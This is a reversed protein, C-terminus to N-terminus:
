RELMPRSLAARARRRREAGRRISEEHASREQGKGSLREALQLITPYKYLDVITVESSVRSRILDHARIVLLSHAGMDFLNDRLGVRDLDLLAKWIEALESEIHTRPPEYADRGAARLGGMRSLAQRDVKGSPLSPLRDVVCYTSPVMYLPLRVSLLRRLADPSLDAATPFTSMAAPPATRPARLSGRSAYVNYLNTGKLRDSQATAMEFGHTSLLELIAQLRGGSNEVEAVIQRVRDWDRAELGRLVDLESREVDIKLLDIRDVGADRVADSLTKATVNLESASFREAALEDVQVASLGRADREAARRFIAADLHPAAFLGSLSAARRYYTFKRTGAADSIAYPFLRANCRHLEVNDHLLSFMAPNPEFACVRARPWNLHVWLTFLGINAGLDFVCAGDELVIRSSYTLDEFIEAYHFDTENKSHHLVPIGNPLLYCHSAHLFQQERTPVVYAALYGDGNPDVRALVVAKEIAPHRSLEAAVEDLEVRQGRVKIQHDVRGIYELSGQITFRGMDGTRYMRAGPEVSFPDPMFAAATLDPRGLYGRNVGRGGVYIEGAALPPVPSLTANLLYVTMNAVPRGIPANGGDAAQEAEAWTVDNSLESTGYLNVLVAHSMAAAFRESVDATLAEGSVIWLTLDALRSALDPVTDLMTRLLSPVLVIRTVRADALRSVLRHPDRVVEDPVVVTPVGALLPGFIEQISDGFSLSTKQCCIEGPRFPYTRWMWYFANLTSAHLGLIGKPKGTSGSSYMVYALNIPQVGSGPTTPPQRLVAESPDDLLIRTGDFTGLRSALARETLLISLKAETVIEALREDPYLPDLPVYAAGAKLIALLGVYMHPSRNTFIGILIEPGAGYVRLHHALRNTGDNLERFTLVGDCEVATAEPMRECTADFIEHICEDTPYDEQTANWDVLVSRREEETLLSLAGVPRDVSNAFQVLLARYEGLLQRAAVAPIRARDYMLRISLEEGPVAVLTLPYSSQQVCVIEDVALSGPASRLLADLPYNEVIVVTEFAPTATPLESWRQVDSLASHGFEGAEALRTQVTDLWDRLNARPNVELRLPLTNIFLGVTSEIRDLQPPRGSVTVGHVVDREGSYGALLLAWAGQLLTNLTCHNRMAQGRLAAAEAASLADEIEDPDPAQGYIRASALPVPTPSTFGKLVNRWYRKATVNDRAALWDVFPRFAPAPDAEIAAGARYAEYWRSLDELVIAVSWGDALIHHFSWVIQVAGAGLRAVFLRMLPARALDFGKRREAELKRRLQERQQTDSWHSWDEREVSISAAPSVRQRPTDLEQWAFETRLAAHRAIVANWARVFADDDFPGRVRFCMHNQYVGTGPAALDHYLMGHQMATIPYSDESEDNSIFRLLYARITQIMRQATDSRHIASGYRLDIHLQEDRIRAIVEFLYPRKLRPSRESGCADSELTFLSGEPVGREVRGLYDLCIEAKPVAALECPSGDNSSYCLLGFGAGGKPVQRLAAKVIDLVQDSRGTPELDLLLPFLATFWGVTRSVDLGAPTWGRGHREIDMLIRREGTWDRCAAAVAAVLLELPRAGASQPGAGLFARTEETGLRDSVTCAAGETNHGTSTDRPLPKADTSTLRAWYRRDEDLEHEDVDRVLSTAWAQFSTAPTCSNRRVSGDRYEGELDSVLIPWSLADTALHHATMFLRSPESSGCDFHVVRFVPGNAVNLSKQIGDIAVALSAHRNDESVASLDLTSFCEGATRALWQKWDTGCATVRLRLADHRATVAAVAQKMKNGDLPERCALLISQNYHSIDPQALELFWQQIPTLPVSDGDPVAATARQRDGDIAAALEAISQHRFFQEVTVHVADRSLLSVIQVITISDAGLEFINDEVAVEDMRLMTSWAWALRQETPTRPPTRRGVPLSASSEPLKSVDVKGSPTLPLAALVVFDSPVMYHPLRSTLFRRLDTRFEDTNAAVAASGGVPVVYAILRTGGVAKTRAVVAADAVRPHASLGAAVEGPEVRCGLVKVQDDVRGCYEISGDPLYRGLDGTRYMRLFPRSEGGSRGVAEKVGTFSHIEYAQFGDASVVAYPLRWVKVQASGLEDLMRLLINSDEDSDIGRSLRKTNPTYVIAEGRTDDVPVLPLSTQIAFRGGERIVGFMNRLFARPDEVRDLVLTCIAFDQSEPSIGSEEVFMQPAIDVKAMVVDMGKRRARQVFYPSIDVGKVSAGAATLALLGEANGFGFEVGSWGRLDERGLLMGYIEPPIECSAYTGRLGELLYRYFAAKSPPDSLRRLYEESRAALDADLGDLYRMHSALEGDPSTVDFERRTAVADGHAQRFRKLAARLAASDIPHTDEVYAFPNPIFREATLDPRGHYGRALGKGSVYIEGISGVPAVMLRPDLIYSRTDSIPTGIPVSRAKPHRGVGAGQWAHSYVTYETPGYANVFTSRASWRQALEAPCAEGVSILTLDRGRRVLAPDLQRLLSPVSVLVDIRADDIAGALLAPDLRGRDMMVLTAGNGLAMVTEGVSADFSYVSLQSIHRGPVVGFFARQWRALAVLGHHEIMVGKPVGTTGSTYIVYALNSPAVSLGLNDAPERGIQAEEADLVVTRAWVSPLQRELGSSTLVIPAHLDALVSALRHTPHQPDLYVYAAGAKWVALIAAVLEPSRELHIGVLVDPGLGLRRMWRALRNAYVNLDGYSVRRDSQQIAIAEPDRLAHAEFTEHIARPGRDVTTTRNFDRVIANSERGALLPLRSLRDAPKRVADALVRNYRALLAEITESDFLDSSYEATLRLTDGREEVLIFLDYLSTGNHIPYTRVRLGRINLVAHPTNELVFAIQFGPSGSRSRALKLSDVIRDFPVERNAMAEMVAARVRAMFDLFPPDGSADVRLVISNVFLGLALEWETRDRESISTGVVVDDTGAIRHLLAQFAAMLVVFLTYGEGAALARVASLTLSDIVAACVSGRMTKVAPRPRDTPLDLLPPLQQLRKEWYALQSDLAGDSFRRRQWSSYDGYQVTLPPLSAPASTLAAQYLEAFEKTLVAASWADFVMHHVCIVLLYKRASLQLLLLRLLPARGLDFPRRVWDGSTREVLGRQEPRALGRVDAFTFPVIACDHVELSPEGDVVVIASRLTDHRRVIEAFAWRVVSVDLPGDLEVALGSLFAATGPEMQEQFWMRSQAFSLPYVGSRAPTHRSPDAAGAKLKGLRRALLALKAASLDGIADSLDSM